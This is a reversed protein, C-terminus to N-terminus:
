RRGRRPHGCQRGGVWRSATLAAADRLARRGGHFRGRRGTRLLQRRRARCRARAGVVSVAVGADVKFSRASFLAAPTGSGSITATKYVQSLPAGNCVITLADTDITCPAASLELDDTMAFDLTVGTINSPSFPLPKPTATENANANADPVPSSDATTLPADTGGGDPGGLQVCLMSACTLGANCTGNPYCAGGEGGAMAANADSSSGCACLPALAAVFSALVLRVSSRM